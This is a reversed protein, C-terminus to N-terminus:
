TRSSSRAHIDMVCNGWVTWHKASDESFATIRNGARDYIYEHRSVTNGGAISEAHTLRQQSDYRYRTKAPQEAIRTQTVSKLNDNDHYDYAYSVFPAGTNIRRELGQLRGGEASPTYSFDEVIRSYENSLVRQELRGSGETYSHIHTGLWDVKNSIRGLEDRPWIAQHLPNETANLLERAILYGKDDYYYDITSDPLIGTETKLLGAGAAAAGVTDAYDGYTYTM